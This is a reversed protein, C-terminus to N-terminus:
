TFKANLSSPSPSQRVTSRFIGTRSTLQKTLSPLKPSTALRGRGSCSGALPSKIQRCGLRSQFSGHTIGGRTARTLLSSHSNCICHRFMRRTTGTRENTRLAGDEIRICCDTSHREPVHLAVARAARRLFLTSLTGTLLVLGESRLTCRVAPLRPCGTSHNSCQVLSLRQPTVPTATGSYLVSQSHESAARTATM